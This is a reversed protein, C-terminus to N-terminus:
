QADSFLSIVKAAFIEDRDMKQRLLSHAMAEREIVSLRFARGWSKMHAYEGYHARSKAEIAAELRIHPLSGYWPNGIGIAEPMPIAAGVTTLDMGLAAAAAKPGLASVAAGGGMIASLLGRRNM